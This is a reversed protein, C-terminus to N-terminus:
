GVVNFNNSCKNKLIRFKNRALFHHHLFAKERMFNWFLSFVEQKKQGMIGVPNFVGLVGLVPIKLNMLAGDIWGDM